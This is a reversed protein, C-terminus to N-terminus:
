KKLYKELVPNNLLDKHDQLRENEIEFSKELESFEDRIKSYAIEVEIQLISLFQSSVTRLSDNTEFNELMKYHTQLVIKFNNNKSSEMDATLCYIEVRVAKQKDQEKEARARKKENIHQDYDEKSVNGAKFAYCTDCQDKGPVFLSLNKEEFAQMFITLSGYPKNYSICFDKYSRYLDIKTDWLPELYM